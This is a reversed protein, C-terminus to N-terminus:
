DPLAHRPASRIAHALAEPRGSSILLREGGRLVLQVGQRGPVTLANGGARGALGM